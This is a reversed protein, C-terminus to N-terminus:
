SKGASYAEEYLTEYQKVVADISFNEIVRQRALMGLRRRKEADMEILERWANTLADPNHPSVVKGTDGVIYASDGVDTVVCPVGCSMAEGIVNPFGEGFSSSSAIDFAASVHNLDDRRGLLHISGNLKLANIKGVLESNSPEVGEGVLVFRIDPHTKLLDAAAKLFTEHDKVPHYRGVLGILFSDEKLNLSSRFRMRLEDSPAFLEVDFGNPIIVWKDSRYDLKKEHSLASTRSNNIIKMPFASLRSGLWITFATLFKESSLDTHTGRINWLVPMKGPLFFSALQAALNGHYMWGQIIDPKSKRLLKVLRWFGAVPIRGPKMNVSYAKIGLAEIRKAIPGDGALSIVVPDFRSRDIGSLLKLLMMEAGGTSLGTIIHAVKIM